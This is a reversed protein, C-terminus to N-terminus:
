KGTRRVCLARRGTSSYPWGSPDNDARGENFDFYWDYGSPHGRDDLRRNSSWIDGTLFLKGEVHWTFPRLNKRPGALGPSEINADYIDQLEYITPLRWDSYGALRLNRCYKMAGGWSVDKGNDKGAWMLQSTDIWYGREQTLKGSLDIPPSQAYTISALVILLGLVLKSQWKMIHMM